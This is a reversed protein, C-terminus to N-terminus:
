KGSRACRFGIYEKQTKTKLIYRDVLTNTPLSNFWSGRIAAYPGFIQCFFSASFGRAERTCYRNMTWEQVNGYMDMAGFESRDIPNSGVAKPKRKAPNDEEQCLLGRSKECSYEDGWTYMSHMNGRAAVEWELETPLRDGRWNCFEKAQFWNVNTMPLQNDMNLLSDSYSCGNQTICLRYQGSTVEYKDIFFGKVDIERAPSEELFAEKKCFIEDTTLKNFNPTSEGVKRCHEISNIINEGIKYKGAPIAVMESKMPSKHHMDQCNITFIIIIVILISNYRNCLM